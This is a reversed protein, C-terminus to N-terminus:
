FKYVLLNESVPEVVYVYIAKGAIIARAKDELYDYKGIFKDAAELRAEWDDTALKASDNRVFNGTKIDLSNRITLTGRHKFSFVAFGWTNPLTNIFYTGAVSFALSMFIDWGIAAEYYSSLEINFLDNDNTVGITSFQLYKNLLKKKKETVDEYGATSFFSTALVSDPKGTHAMYNCYVTGNYINTATIFFMNGNCATKFLVDNDLVSSGPMASVKESGSFPFPPPVSTYTVNFDALSVTILDTRYNDNEISFLFKGPAHYVKRNITSLYAPNPHSNDYIIYSEEKKKKFFDSFVAPKKRTGLDTNSITVTREVSLPKKGPTKSHIYIIDANEIYALIYITGNEQLVDAIHEKPRLSLTDTIIGAIGTNNLETFFVTNSKKAYYCDYFSGNSTITALREFSRVKEFSKDRGATERYIVKAPEGETFLARSGGAYSFVDAIVRGSDDAFLKVDRNVLEEPTLHYTAFREQAAVTLTLFFLYASFFIRTIYM